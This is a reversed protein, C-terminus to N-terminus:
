RYRLHHRPERTAGGVPLLRPKEPDFCAICSAGEDIGSPPQDFVLARSSARVQGDRTKYKIVVRRIEPMRAPDAVVTLIVTPLRVFAVLLWDWRSLAPSGLKVRVRYDAQVIRLGRKAPLAGFMWVAAAVAIGMGALVIPLAPKRHGSLAAAALLLGLGMLLGLGIMAKKGATLRVPGRESRLVQNRTTHCAATQTALAM